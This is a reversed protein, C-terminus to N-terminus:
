YNSYSPNAYIVSWLLRIFKPDISGKYQYSFVSQDEDILINEDPSLQDLNLHSSDIEFVAIEDNIKSEDNLDYCMVELMDYAAEPTDMLYITDDKSKDWNRKHPPQPCIGQKLISKVNQEFTAHYLFTPFDTADIVKM